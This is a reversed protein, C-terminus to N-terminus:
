NFVNWPDKRRHRLRIAERIVRLAATALVHQLQPDRLQFILDDNFTVELSYTGQAYHEWCHKVDPRDVIILCLSESRPSRWQAHVLAECQKENSALTCVHPSLELQIDEIPEAAATCPRQGLACLLGFYGAMILNRYLM